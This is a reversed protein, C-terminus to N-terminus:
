HHARYGGNEQTSSSRSKGRTTGIKIRPPRQHSAASSEARRLNRSATLALAEFAQDYQVLRDGVDVAVM